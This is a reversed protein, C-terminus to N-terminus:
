IDDDTGVANYELLTFIENTQSAIELAQKLNDADFHKNVEMYEGDGINTYTNHGKSYQLVLEASEYESDTKVLYHVIYSKKHKKM